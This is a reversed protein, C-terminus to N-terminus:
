TQAEVGLNFGAATLDTLLWAAGTAPNTPWQHFYNAFILGPAAPAGALHDSGGTRAVFDCHQPGVLGVQLRAEQVVALVAAVSTPASNPVSWESLAGATPTSIFNADNIEVPNINGVTNPTWAQTSGAAQPPMTWVSMARTDQDAVIVESWGSAVTYTGSPSGLVLQNLGTTGDTRPDGAFNGVHVTDLYLDIGGGSGAAAYRISLDVQHAVGIPMASSATFLDVWGSAPSHTSVILVGDTASQRLVIREVGDPSRLALAECDLFYGGNGFSGQGHVWLTSSTAFIPTEARNTPPSSADFNELQVGGRAYTSRGALGGGGFGNGRATGFLTFGTDEGGAFLITM